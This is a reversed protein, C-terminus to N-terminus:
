RGKRRVEEGGGGGTGRDRSAAGEGGQAARSSSLVHVQSRGLQGVDQVVALGLHEDCVSAVESGQQGGGQRQRRGGGGGRRWGRRGSRWLRARLWRGRGRGSSRSRGRRRRGQAQVRHKQHVAAAVAAALIAAARRHLRCGRSGRGSRGGGGAQVELENGVVGCDRSGDCGRTRVVAGGGPSPPAQCQARDAGGRERGRGGAGAGGGGWGGGGGGRGLGLRRRRGVRQKLGVRGVVHVVGAAGRSPGLAYQQTVANDHQVCQAGDRTPARGVRGSGVARGAWRLRVAVVWRREEWGRRGGGAGEQGRGGGAEQGTRGM